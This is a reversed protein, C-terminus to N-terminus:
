SSSPGLPINSPPTVQVGTFVNWIRLTRDDHSTILRSGDPTFDAVRVVSDYILAIFKKGSELDCVRLQRGKHSAIGIIWRKLIKEEENLGLFRMGAM